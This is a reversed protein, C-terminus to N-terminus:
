QAAAKADDRRWFISGSGDDAMGTDLNGNPLTFREPDKAQLAAGLQGWAARVNTKAHQFVEDYAASGGVPLALDDIFQRDVGPFKPYFLGADELHRSLFPVHCGEEAFDDLLKTFWHHWENPKAPKHPAPVGNPLQLDILSIGDLVSKWFAAVVPDLDNHAHQDCCRRIGCRRLYEADTVEQHLERYFIYVDQNMECVRHQKQNQEYPGVKFEIVPHVTLDAVLHSVYGFLWAICKRAGASDQAGLPSSLFHGVSSRVFDATKWYHMLNAWGAADADCLVPVNVVAALYPYDPSVAGLECYNLFELLTHKTQSSLEPISDLVNGDCLCDALTIHAFTGPM